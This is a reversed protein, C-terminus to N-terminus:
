GAPAVAKRVPQIESGRLAATTQQSSPVSPNCPCPGGFRCSCSCQENLSKGWICFGSRDFYLCKMQAGRRNVFVYLAGDLPERGMAHRVLAQLEDYSRRMDCPQGYLHVRIQGEALFM